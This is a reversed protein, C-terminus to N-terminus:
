VHAALIDRAHQAAEADVNQGRRLAYHRALGRAPFAEAAFQQALNPLRLTLFEGHRSYSLLWDRNRAAHLQLDAILEADFSRLALQTHRNRRAHAQFLVIARQRDLAVAILMGRYM